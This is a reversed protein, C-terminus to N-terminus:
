LDSKLEELPVPVATPAIRRQRLQVQKLFRGFKAAGRAVEFLLRPTTPQPPLVRPFREPTMFHM